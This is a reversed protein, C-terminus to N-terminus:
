GLFLYGNLILYIFIAVVIGVVAILIKWPYWVPAVVAIVVVVAAIIISIVISILMNTSFGLDINVPQGNQTLVVNVCKSDGRYEACVKYRQDKQLSLSYTGDSKAVYEENGVTIIARSAPQDGHTVVINMLYLDDDQSVHESDTARASPMDNSDYARCYVVLDCEHPVVIDAPAQYSNTTGYVKQALVEVELFQIGDARCDLEFYSVEGTGDPNGDASMEIHRELDDADKNTIEIQCNIPGDDSGGEVTVIANEYAKDFLTNEITFEWKKTDYNDSIGSPIDWTVQYNHLQSGGGTLDDLYFTGPRTSGDPLKLSIDSGAEVGDPDFTVFRWRGDGSDSSGAYDTGINIKMTQGEEFITPYGPNPSPDIVISAEGRVLACYDEVWVFESLCNPDCGADKSWFVRSIMKARLITEKPGNIEFTIPSCELINNDDDWNNVNDNDIDIINIGNYWTLSNSCKGTNPDDWLGTLPGGMGLWGNTDQYGWEGAQKNTIWNNYAGTPGDEDTLILWSSSSYDWVEVQWWPASLLPNPITFPIPGPDNGPIAGQANLVVTMSNGDPDWSTVIHEPVIMEGLPYGFFWHKHNNLRPLCGWWSGTNGDTIYDYQTGDPAIMATNLYGSFAVLILLAIIVLPLLIGMKKKDM